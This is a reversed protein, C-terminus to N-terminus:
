KNSIFGEKQKAVKAVEANQSCWAKNCREVGQHLCYIKKMKEIDKMSLNTIKSSSQKAPCVLNQLYHYARIYDKARTSFRQIKNCSLYSGKNTAMTLRVQGMFQQATKRKGNPVTQLNYKANAWTYEIGEGSIEPHYKPSCDVMVNLGVLKGAKQTM